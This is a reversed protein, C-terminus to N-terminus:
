NLALDNCDLADIWCTVTIYPQTWVMVIIEWQADSAVCVCVCVSLCVTQHIYQLRPGFALKSLFTIWQEKACHGM